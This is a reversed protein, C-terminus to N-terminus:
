RSRAFGRRRRTRLTTPGSAEGATHSISFSASACCRSAARTAAFRALRFREHPAAASGGGHGTHGVGGDGRVTEGLAEGGGTPVLPSEDKEALNQRLGM